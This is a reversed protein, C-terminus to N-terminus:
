NDQLISILSRRKRLDLTEALTPSRRDVPTAEQADIVTVIPEPKLSVNEATKKRFIQKKIPKNKGNNSYNLNSNNARQSKKILQKKPKSTVLYKLGFTVLLSGASCSILLVMLTFFPLASPSSDEAIDPLELETPVIPLPENTEKQELKGPNMLTSLGFVAMGIMSMWVLLFLPIIIKHVSKPTKQPLDNMIWHFPALKLAIKVCKNRM